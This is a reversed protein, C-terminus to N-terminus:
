KGLNLDNGRISLGRAGALIPIGIDNYMRIAGFFDTIM